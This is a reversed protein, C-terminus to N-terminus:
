TGVRPGLTMRAVGRGVLFGIGGAIVDQANSILLDLWFRGLTYDYYYQSPSVMVYDCGAATCRLDFDAPVYTPTALRVVNLLIFAGFLVRGAGESIYKWDPDPSRRALYAVVAAAVFAVGITLWPETLFGLTGLLVQDLWGDKEVVWRGQIRTTL